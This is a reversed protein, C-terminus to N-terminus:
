IGNPQHGCWKCRAILQGWGIAADLPVAEFIHHCHTHEGVMPHGVEKFLHHSMVGGLGNCICGARECYIGPAAAPQEVLSAALVEREIARAFNLAWDPPTTSVAGSARWANGIQEPTLVNNNPM